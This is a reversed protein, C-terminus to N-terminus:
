DDGEPQERLKTQQTHILGVGIQHLGDDLGDGTVVITILPSRHKFRQVRILRAKEMPGLWKAFFPRKIGFRHLMSNTVKLPQRGREMWFKQWIILGVIVPGPTQLERALTFAQIAWPEQMCMFRGKHKIRHGHREPVKVVPRDAFVYEAVNFQDDL